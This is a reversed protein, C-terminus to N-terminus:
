RSAGYRSSRDILERGFRRDAEGFIDASSWGDARAATVAADVGAPKPAGAMDARYDKLLLRIAAELTQKNPM